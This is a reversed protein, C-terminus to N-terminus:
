GDWVVRAQQQEVTSGDFVFRWRAGDEGLMAVYSGATVFPAIARFMQDEDGIKEGEFSIDVVNGEPDNTVPYRWDDMGQEFTACTGEALSSANMWSFFAQSRKGHQYVGGGMTSDPDLWMARLADLAAEKRDARVHFKAEDMRICYGM